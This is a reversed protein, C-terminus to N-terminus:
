YSLWFFTKHVSNDFCPRSFILATTRIITKAHKKKKQKKNKKNQKTKNTKKQRQSRLIKYSVTKLGKKRTQETKDLKRIIESSSVVATATRELLWINQIQISRITQAEKPPVTSFATVMMMYTLVERRSIFLGRQAYIVYSDDKSFLIM